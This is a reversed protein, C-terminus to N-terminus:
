KPTKGEAQARIWELNVSMREVRPILEHWERELEELRHQNGKSIESEQYIGKQSAHTGREDMQHVEIVLTDHERRLQVGDTRLSAWAVAVSAIFAVGTFVHGINFSWFSKPIEM